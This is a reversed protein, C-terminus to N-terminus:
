VDLMVVGGLLALLLFGGHTLRWYGVRKERIKKELM